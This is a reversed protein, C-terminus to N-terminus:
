LSSSWNKQYRLSINQNPQMMCIKNINKCLQKKLQRHCNLKKSTTQHGLSSVHINQNTPNPTKFKFVPQTTFELCMCTSFHQM